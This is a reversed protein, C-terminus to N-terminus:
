YRFAVVKMLIATDRWAGEKVLVTASLIATAVTGENSNGTLTTLPRSRRLGHGKKSSSAHMTGFAFDNAIFMIALVSSHPKDSM